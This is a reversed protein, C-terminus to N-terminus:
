SPILGSANTSKWRWRTSSDRCGGGPAGTWARGRIARGTAAGTPAGDELARGGNVFVDSVGTAYQLPKEYTSHDQFTQPDFIVVDAFAGRRLRGRDSLSLIDAPLSTLRRVAEEVTLVHEERVYRAFLRAFNGYARPHAASLLFPGEPASSEADSGFSMWPLVIQRPINDESIFTYAVTDLDGADDELVLDIIANEASVGREKAVEAVTKGILPKLAAHKFGFFLMGDARSQQFLNEWDQPHPEQMAAIAKARIAPDRLRANMAEQGGDHVWPPLSADLSSGGATYLYMDATIRVGAARAADIMRVVRELKGWNERGMLKFHHIEAPAGSARAIDITEQVAQEIHDGESRMHATYIGGCRASEQAMAILEPTKAYNMPAYILATTLGLAGEEMAQRVLGRMAALQGSSPTVDAEGLVNVRVEGEGVFSAVNPSIGKKQLHDLYGGLTSWTVAYKLDGERATMARAMEPNLPGKSQETFVDLTVGQELGSVARGDILLSEESHGMMDIFGPAVAHGHADVVTRGELARHPGVYSIRDADIAVDGVFPKAGSGDYIVGNRIVTDHIRAPAATAICGAGALCAAAAGCVISISRKM